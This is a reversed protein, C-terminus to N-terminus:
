RKWPPLEEHELADDEELLPIMLSLGAPLRPLIPAGPNAEIIRIYGCPDGYYRDALQDWREGESTLHILAEM